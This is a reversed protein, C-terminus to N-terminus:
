RADAPIQTLTVNQQSNAKITVKEAKSENLKLLEPDMYSGPEIDGWAYLKYDGPAINQMTFQGTQDSTTTRYLDNREEKLPDPLLTVIGGSVPQQKTDRVIGGILGVGTGLTIQVAGAVGGSADIGTDLVEQDGARISKLWTGPPLGFVSIRYKDPGVNELVFSGDEKPSGNPANFPMAEMPTLQVRLNGFTFKKGQAQEFQQVDGDLRISGTMTVGGGLTLIVNEVNDRTVDVAVKGMSSQPGQPMATVYYSGAQVSGIEFAGDEKVAAGPGGFFGMMPGRERPIVM